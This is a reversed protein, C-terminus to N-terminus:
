VPKGIKNLIETSIFEEFQNVVKEIRLNDRAFTIANRSLKELLERNHILTALKVIFENENSFILGNIGDAVVDAVGHIQRTLIPLGSALAENVSNPPYGEAYSAVLYVNALRYYPKPDTQRGLFRIRSGLIEEALAKNNKMENNHRFMIDWNPADYSGLHLLVFDDELRALWNFIEPFGKRKILHGVVLIIFSNESIDLKKRLAQTEERSISYYFWDSSVGQFSQFIKANKFRQKWSLSFSSNLSYYGSLKPLILRNIIGSPFKFLTQADDFGWLTSRFVLKTRTLVAVVAILIYGPMAGYIIWVSNFDANLLLSTLLKFRYILRNIISRYFYKIRVIFVGDISEKKKLKGMPNLCFIFVKNGKHALNRALLMASRGDGAFAPITESTFICYTISKQSADM